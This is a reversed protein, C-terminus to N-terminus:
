YLSSCSDRGLIGKSKEVFFLNQKTQECAGELKKKGGQLLETLM